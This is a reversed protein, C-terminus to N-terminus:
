LRMRDGEAYLSHISVTGVYRVPCTVLTERQTSPTSQFLVSFSTFAFADLRGRRLPLPNFRYRLWAYVPTKRRGRRLPLPNFCARDAQRDPEPVDGEAYLSHISVRHHCGHWDNNYTERQTSPTSQFAM